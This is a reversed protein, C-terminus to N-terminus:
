VETTDADNQIIAVAVEDDTEHTVVTFEADPNQEMVATIAREADDAIMANRVGITYAVMIDAVADTIADAMEMDNLSILLEQFATVAFTYRMEDAQEHEAYVNQVIDHAKQNINM